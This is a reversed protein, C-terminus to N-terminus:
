YISFLIILISDSTYSAKCEGFHFTHDQNEDNWFDYVPELPSPSVDISRGVASADNYDNFSGSDPVDVESMQPAVDVASMKPLSVNVESETQDYKREQFSEVDVSTESNDYKPVEVVEPTEAENLVVEQSTGVDVSTESNDYKPVVVVEPTEAENLVVEQSTGVDEEKVEDSPIGINAVKGILSNFKTADFSNIPRDNASGANESTSDEAYDQNSSRGVFDEPKAVIDHGFLNDLNLDFPTEKPGEILPQDYEETDLEDLPLNRPMEEKSTQESIVLYDEDSVPDFGVKFLGLKKRKEMLNQFWHFTGPRSGDEAIVAKKGALKGLAKCLFM